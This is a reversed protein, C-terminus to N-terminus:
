DAAVRVRGAPSEADLASVSLGCQELYHELRAPAVGAQKSATEVDLTGEAYLTVATRMAHRHM